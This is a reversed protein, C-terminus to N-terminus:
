LNRIPSVILKRTFKPYFIALALVLYELAILVMNEEYITTEYASYSVFIVVSWIVAFPRRSFIGIIILFSIYWPHVTTGLLYYTLSLWLASRLAVSLREWPQRWWLSVGVLATLIGMAPGIVAILNYGVVSEGLWRVVYYISANFEFRQFYLNISEMFHMLYEWRFYIPLFLILSCCMFAAFFQVRDKGKFVKWLFPIMLLPFLKTAVSMAMAGGALAFNKEQIHRLALVVFFIMLAEFHANGLVDVILLPNLMYLVSYKPSINFKLLVQPLMWITAIEALLLPLKIILSSLYLDNSALAGFASIVQIVTPYVSYYSTSNILPFIQEFPTHLNEKYFEIPTLAYPSVGELIVTGDWIFRYLDESLTPFAFWAIGRFFVGLFAASRISRIEQYLVLYAGCMAFYVTLLQVTEDRPTMFLLAIEAFLYLVVAVIAISNIRAWSM